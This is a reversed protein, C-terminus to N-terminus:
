LYDFISLRSVKGAINLAAEFAAEQQNIQGIVEIFDADEYRSLIETLDLQSTEINGKSTEIRNANNGLKGRLSREQNAGNDLDAIGASIADIDGARMAEEINTLTAFLNTAGPDVTGNNDADGLFLAAGNVTIDLYEGPSIEANSINADGNYLIPWTASNGPLYGGPVYAGNVTFPKTKEEYGAFIYKGDLQANATNLLEDKLNAIQDALINMDNVSRAGNISSIAIEKASTLMNETQALYSETTTIKDLSLEATTIFRDNEKMRMRTHLISKISAPEDSPKSVKKGTAAINNLEMLRASIQSIQAQLTRYQTTQTPRMSM